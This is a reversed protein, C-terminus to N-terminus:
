DPIVKSCRWGRSDPGASKCQSKLAPSCNARPSVGSTATSAIRMPLIVTSWFGSPPTRPMSAPSTILRKTPRVTAWCIMSATSRKVAGNWCASLVRAPVSHTAWTRCANVVRVCSHKMPSGHHEGPTGVLDQGLMQHSEVIIHIDDCQVMTHGVREGDHLLLEPLMRVYSNKEPLDFHPIGTSNLWTSTLDELPNSVGRSVSLWHPLKGVSNCPM